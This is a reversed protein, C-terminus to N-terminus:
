VGKYIPKVIESNTNLRFDYTRTFLDGTEERRTFVATPLDFVLLDNNVKIEIPLTTSYDSLEAKNADTLFQTFSGTVQRGNLVYNQPYSVSGSVANNVTDNKIWEIDNSIEINASAIFDLTTTGVKACFNTIRVFQRAPTEQLTGPISTVKTIKAASGSLSATHVQTRDLNFTTTEFVCTELKYIVNDSEIYLDFSPAQGGSYECSLELEKQITPQDFVPVTMSFNAPNAKVIVAHEHLDALTHLTKRKYGQEDFTQSVSLDPYVELKYRLGDKVLFVKSNKKFNYM